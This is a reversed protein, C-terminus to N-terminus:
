QDPAEDKLLQQRLLDGLWNEYDLDSWGCGDTAALYLEVGTLMWARDVARARRHRIERRLKHVLKPHPAQWWPIFGPDDALAPPATLTTAALM